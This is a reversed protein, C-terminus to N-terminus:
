GGEVTDGSNARSDAGSKGNPAAIKQAQKVTKKHTKVGAPIILKDTNKQGAQAQSPREPIGRSRENQKRGTQSEIGTGSVSVPRKRNVALERTKEIRVTSSTPKPKTPTEKEVNEPKVLNRRAITGEIKKVTQGLMSNHSEAPTLSEGDSWLIAYGLAWFGITIIGANQRLQYGFGSGKEVGTGFFNRWYFTEAREAWHILPAIVYDWIAKLILRLLWAVAEAMLQGLKRFDLVTKALEVLFDEASAIGGVVDEGAELLDGPDPFGNIWGGGGGGGPIKEIAEKAVGSYRKVGEQAGNRGSQEIQWRSWAPYFSKGDAQWRAKAAKTAKVPDLRDAVSGFSSDEQWAGFHAGDGGPNSNMGSEVYITGLGEAIVKPSRPFGSILMIAAWEQPTLTGGKKTAV